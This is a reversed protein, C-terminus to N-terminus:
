NRSCVPCSLDQTINFQRLEMTLGDIITLKGALTPLELLCKIAELAQISGIIGLLPAIVGNQSCSEQISGQNSKLPFLCQYCPQKNKRFDYTTVQGEWRIAAGSVLPIQCKHCIRNLQYRTEFNDSCDLVLDHQKIIKLLEDDTLKTTITETKVNKNLLEVSQQASIAKNQGVRQQNHILQRQLNSLDVQDFDILTLQGIGASALYLAVPSGLGGLGIIAVSKQALLLQGEYGIEDLLIHRGYRELQEDNLEQIM